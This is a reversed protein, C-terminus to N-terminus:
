HVNHWEFDICCLAIPKKSATAEREKVHQAIVQSPRSTAAKASFEAIAKQVDAASSGKIGLLESTISSLGPAGILPDGETSKTYSITKTIRASAAITLPRRSHQRCGSSGRLPKSLAASAASSALCSTPAM